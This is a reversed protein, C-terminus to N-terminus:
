QDVFNMPEISEDQLMAPDLIAGNKILQKSIMFEKPRAVCDAAILVGQKLYFLAFSPTASCEASGRCVVQDYGENLGSMQLKIGYQDSWFWPVAAYAQSRGCINAATSRAQDNANQVSELQITRQYISNPHVTCDGAAFINPDSTQGFENVRIGRDVHIGAAVALATNATIGIGVILFDSEFERGDSCIVKEVGEGGALGVVEVGTCIEVGHSEHLQQMFRSMAAGTVRQLVRDAMELVTVQLSKQVLVAAVELGIYGGGIITVRKAAIIESSLLAIDATTRIYFVNEYLNEIPLKRASAGTCLALKDYRLVSGDDLLVTRLQKDISVVTTSLLLDIDNDRYTKMPRLRIANLEKQGSLYEKSLPPRHYPLESEESILQIAGSWGEKRLQLALSVGAHSAGVIICNNSM